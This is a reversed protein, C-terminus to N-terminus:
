LFLPDHYYQQFTLVILLLLRLFNFFIMLWVKSKMECIEKRRLFMIHNAICLIEVIALASFQWPYLDASRLLSHILGMLLNKIGYEFTLYFVSHVSPKANDVFYKSLRGLFAFVIFFGGVAFLVLFYLVM